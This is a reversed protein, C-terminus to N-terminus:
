EFEIRFSIQNGPPTFELQTSLARIIALGRGSPTSDLTAGGGQANEWDFGPGSDWVKVEASSVKLDELPGTGNLHIEIGVEGIRLREFSAQRAAEYAEFGDAKLSSDLGLIGHDMANTIAESLALSLAGCKSEDMGQDQLYRIIRPAMESPGFRKPNIKCTLQFIDCELAPEMALVGQGVAMPMVPASPVELLVWSIDDAAEFDDSLPRLAATILAVHDKLGFALGPRLLRDVISEEPMLDSLGDTFALFRDGSEVRTVELPIDKLEFPSIGAPPLVSPFVHVSGDMRLLYANPLGANLVSFRREVPDLEYMLTCVFRDVPLRALLKSNAEQFIAELRFAQPAMSLFTEALPLTCIGSSLGHGTADCIMGRDNGTLTRRYVCLDGNARQTTLTEMHLHVPLRERERQVVRGLIHKALSMEQEAEEKHRELGQHLRALESLTNLRCSLEGPSLPKELFEIVGLQLAQDRVARESSATMMVIPVFRTGIVRKIERCLELGNLGPMEFDTLVVDPDTQEFLLLAETGSRAPIFELEQHQAVLSVLSLIIDSDDAVLLRM